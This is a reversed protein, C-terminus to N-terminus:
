DLHGDVFDFRCGCDFVKCGVFDNSVIMAHMSSSITKCRAISVIPVPVNHAVMEGFQSCIHCATDHAAFEMQAIISANIRVGMFQNLRKAIQVEIEKLLGEYTNIGRLRWSYDKDMKAIDALAKEKALNMGVIRVFAFAM